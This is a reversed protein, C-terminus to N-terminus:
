HYRRGKWPVREGRLASRIFIGAGVIAGLPYILVYAMPVRMRLNLVTWGLMSTATALAAWAFIPGTAGDFLTSALTAAPLVWFVLMWLAILWPIAPRLWPSVTLRAGRAVNKSWGRVVEALSRYMRTTMLDQAHGIFFRFGAEVFRQALRLDEVVEGRVGRHGDVAEYAERRVLIFQGNAIADRPNTVRNLRTTDRYRLMITLLIHPMVVREWFGVLRQHPIASVMDAEEALMAGVAHGLLAPEHRTDADTFLLLEGRAAEYGQWCAWPKGYWGPPLPAGAIVRFNEIGQAALAHLIDGTGDDSEDDVVILEWSPYRTALLSRVCAGINAAENRAPVIVSVMPAAGAPPVPYRSLRPRRRTSWVAVVVFLAWPLLAILELM